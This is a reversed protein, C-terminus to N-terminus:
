ATAGRRRASGGGKMAGSTTAAPGGGAGAGGGSENDEVPIATLSRGFNEVTFRDGWAQLEQKAATEAMVADGLRRQLDRTDAQRAAKSVSNGSM